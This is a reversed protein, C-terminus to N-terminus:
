SFSNGTMLHSTVPRSINIDETHYLNLTLSKQHVTNMNTLTTAVSCILITHSHILKISRMAQLSQYSPFSKSLPYSFQSM